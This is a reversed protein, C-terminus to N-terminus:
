KKGEKEDGGGKKPNIVSISSRNFTIKVNKAVEVEVTEKNSANVVVGHIGGASIVKDGKSMGAILEERKKQEKKQPRLVIFWLAMIMIGIFMIMKTM